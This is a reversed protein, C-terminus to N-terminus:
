RAPEHRAKWHKRSLHLLENLCTTVVLAASMMRGWPM